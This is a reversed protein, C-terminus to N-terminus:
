ANTNWFSEHYQLCLNTTFYSDLRRCISFFGFSRPLNKKKEFYRSQKVETEKHGLLAKQHHYITSLYIHSRLRLKQRTISFEAKLINVFSNSNTKPLYSASSVCPFFSSTTSLILISFFFNDRVCNNM